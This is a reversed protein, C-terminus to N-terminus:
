GLPCLILTRNIGRFNDINNGSHLTCFVVTVYYPTEFWWCISQKSLRKNQREEFFLCWREVHSTKTLPIWRHGTTEGWLPCTVRFHKWKIVVNHALNMAEYPVMFDHKSLRKNLRLDFFVDFSLTVPTVSRHIGRVFPWNRPFHKWKIVDNHPNEEWVWGLSLNSRENTRLKNRLIGIAEFNQVAMSQGFDWLCQAVSTLGFSGTDDGQRLEYIVLEGIVRYSLWLYIYFISFIMANITYEICCWTMCSKTVTYLKWVVKLM